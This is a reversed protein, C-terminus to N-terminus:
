QGMSPPHLKALFAAGPALQILDVLDLGSYRVEVEEVNPNDGEAGTFEFGETKNALDLALM